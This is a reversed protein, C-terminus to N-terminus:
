CINLQGPCRYCLDRSTGADVSGAYLEGSRESLQHHIFDFDALRILSFLDAIRVAVVVVVLLYPIDGSFSIVQSLFLPRSELLSHNCNQLYM